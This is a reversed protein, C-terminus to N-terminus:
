DGPLICEEDVKIELFFANEGVKIELFFTNKMSRLRWSSHMRGPVQFKGEFRRSASVWGHVSVDWFVGSHLRCFSPLLFCM